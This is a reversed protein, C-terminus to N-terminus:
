CKSFLPHIRLTTTDIQKSRKVSESSACPRSKMYQKYGNGAVQRLSVQVGYLAFQQSSLEMKSDDFSNRKKNVVLAFKRERFNEIFKM